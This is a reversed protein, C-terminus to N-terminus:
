SAQQQLLGDIEVKEMTVLAKRNQSTELLANLWHKYSPPTSLRPVNHFRAKSVVQAVAKPDPKSPANQRESSQDLTVFLTASSAQFLYGGVDRDRPM